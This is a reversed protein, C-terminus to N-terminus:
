DIEITDAWGLIKDKLKKYDKSKCVFECIWYSQTGQFMCHVYTYKVGSVTNTNTFYFYNNREVLSSKPTNNLDIIELCYDNLSGIEYGAYELDKYSEALASFVVDNSSLYVDFATSSVEKFDITLTITLNGVTFNKPNASCGALLGSLFMTTTILILIQRFLKNQLRIKM